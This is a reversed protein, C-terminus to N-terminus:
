FGHGKAYAYLADVIGRDLAVCILFAVVPAWDFPGPIKATLKRVPSYIKEALQNVLKVIEHDQNGAWKCLINAMIVFQIGMIVYGFIGSLLNALTAGFM